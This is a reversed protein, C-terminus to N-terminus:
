RDVRSHVDSGAVFKRTKLYLIGRKLYLNMMKVKLGDETAAVTSGVLQCSWGPSLPASINSAKQRIAALDLGSYSTLWGAPYKEQEESQPEPEPKPPPVDEMSAALAAALAQEESMGANDLVAPRPNGDIDCPIGVMPTGSSARPSDPSSGAGPMDWQKNCVGCQEGQLRVTPCAWCEGAEVAHAAAISGFERASPAQLEAAAGSDDGMDYSVKGAYNAKRSFPILLEETMSIKPGEIQKLLLSLYRELKAICETLSGTVGADASAIIDNVLGCSFIQEVVAQSIDPRQAQGVLVKMAMAAQLTRKWKPDVSDKYVPRLFGLNAKAASVLLKLDTFDASVIKPKLSKSEFPGCLKNNSEILAGVKNADGNSGFGVVRGCKGAENPVDVLVGISIHPLGGGLLELPLRFDAAADESVASLGATTFCSMAKQWEESLGAMSRLMAKALDCTQQQAERASDDGDLGSVVEVKRVTPLPFEGANCGQTNWGTIPPTEDAEDRAGVRYYDGQGSILDNINAFYWWKAGSPLRWRLLLVDNANSWCRVDDRREAMGGDVTRPKYEGNCKAVGAGSIHYVTESAVSWGAGEQNECVWQASGPNQPSPAIRLWTTSTSEQKSETVEVTAGDDLTNVANGDRSPQDRVNWHAFSGGDARKTSLNYTTTLKVNGSETRALQQAKDPKFTALKALLTIFQVGPVQEPTDAGIKTALALCAKDLTVPDLSHM